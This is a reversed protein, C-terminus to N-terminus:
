VFSNMWVEEARIGKVKGERIYKADVHTHSPTLSLRKISERRPFLRLWIMGPCVGMEDMLLCFSSSYSLRPRYGRAHTMYLQVPVSTKTPPNTEWRQLFFDILLGHKV